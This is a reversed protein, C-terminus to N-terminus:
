HSVRGMGDWSAAPEAAFPHLWSVICVIPKCAMAGMAVGGYAWVTGWVPIGGGLGLPWGASMASLPASPGHTSGRAAIGATEFESDGRSWEKAKSAGDGLRVLFGLTVTNTTGKGRSSSAPFAPLPSAPPRAARRPLPPPTPQCWYSAPRAVRQQGGESRLSRLRGSPCARSIVNTEQKELGPPGLYRRIRSGCRICCRQRPRASVHPNARAKELRVSDEWRKGPCGPVSRGLVSLRGLAAYPRM